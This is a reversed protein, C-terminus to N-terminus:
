AFRNLREIADDIEEPKTFGINIADVCDLNLVFKLSENIKDAIEGEGLIKMGLIGKGSAHAQELVPVVEETPADMKVGFPNVRALIVDVWDSAAAEKLAGFDHCSVGLAKIQGAAKAESLVDMAPKFRDTWGAERLCHLLVVDLHDTALEQRYREIDAKVVEPERSWTKTLLMIEERPMKGDKMAERVYWHSGYIDAMDFYRIGRDYARRLTAIFQERGQKIQDSNKGWSRTGTGMGLRSPTLGVKGLTRRSDATAKTEARAATASVTMGTAAIAATHKMFDRRNLPSM